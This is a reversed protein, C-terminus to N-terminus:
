QGNVFNAEDYSQWSYGWDDEEPGHDRRDRIDAVTLHHHHGERGQHQEQHHSRIEAESQSM